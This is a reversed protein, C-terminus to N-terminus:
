RTIAQNETGIITKRPRTSLILRLLWLPTNRILLGAARVKFSPYCRPKNVAVAKLATEVVCPITSYFCKRFSAEKKKGITRKAADGFGTHVPGPCVATVHIGTKLLELRLAESFSAVFAKSAAYMAFDPIPLDAALSAVNIIHAKKAEQMAPLMARTLEVPATMNVEMLTRNTTPLSTSFEGYDGLGANNVLLISDSKIVSLKEAIANRQTENALDCCWVEAKLSPSSVTLQQALDNLTNESRAILIIHECHTALKEAFAKGFGSSAGTIVVTRYMMGEIM